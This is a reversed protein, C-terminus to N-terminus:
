RFTIGDCFSDPARTARQGELDFTINSGHVAHFRLMTKSIVFTKEHKEKLWEKNVTAKRRGIIKRKYYLVLIILIM